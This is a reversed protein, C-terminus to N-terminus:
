ACASSSAKVLRRWTARDRTKDVARRIDLGKMELDEMVNKMWTKKPRGRSREGETQGYLVTAPLRKEEMRTVHGFWTLRRKRIRDIVTEKQGTEERTIENRIREIRSRCLIGRLWGM